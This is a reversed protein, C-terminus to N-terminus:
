IIIFKGVEGTYQPQMVKLLAFLRIEVINNM